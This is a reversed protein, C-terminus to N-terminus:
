NQSDKDIEEPHPSLREYPAEMHMVLNEMFNHIGEKGNICITDLDVHFQIWPKDKQAMRIQEDRENIDSISATKSYLVRSFMLTPAPNYLFLQEMPKMFLFTCRFILPPNVPMDYNLEGRNKMRVYFMLNYYKTCTSQLTHIMNKNETVRV